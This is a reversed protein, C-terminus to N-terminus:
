LCINKNKNKNKQFFFQVAQKTNQVAIFNWLTSIFDIHIEINEPWTELVRLWFLFYQVGNTMKYQKTEYTGM